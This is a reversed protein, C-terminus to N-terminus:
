PTAATLLDVQYALMGPARRSGGSIECGEGETRREVTRYGAGLIVRAIADGRQQALPDGTAVCIVPRMHAWGDHNRAFGKAITRAGQSLRAQRDRFFLIVPTLPHYEVICRGDFCAAASPPRERQVPTVVAVGAVLVAALVPM